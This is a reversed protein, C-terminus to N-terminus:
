RKQRALDAEAALYGFAAWAPGDVIARLAAKAADTEGECWLWNALGYATTASAVGDEIRTKRLSKMAKPDKYALLLTQYGENEIVNMAENVPALIDRAAGDKGQRRLTMYLWHLTACLMDDNKSLALCRQYCAQAKSFNGSLYYALGLHYWINTQLTSTPINKANPLGDPEVRDPQGEVLAAAKELDAIARRIQRTSIFRHGRHRYLRADDPALMMAKTYIDIAQRYRGLYATRRGVWIWADVRNPHQALDREAADLKALFDEAVEAPLEARFLPEGLFSMAEAESTDAVSAGSYLCFAWTLICALSM